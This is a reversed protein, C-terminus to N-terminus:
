GGGGPATKKQQVKAKPHSKASKKLKSLSAAWLEEKTTNNEAVCCFSLSSKFVCVYFM